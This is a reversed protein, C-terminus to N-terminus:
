KCKTNNSVTYRDGNLYVMEDKLMLTIDLNDAKKFELILRGQPGVGMLRYTGKQKGGYPGAQGKMEGRREAESRFTGDPCLWIHNAKLSTNTGEYLVLYKGRLETSWDYDANLDQLTPEVFSLNDAVGTLLDKYKEHLYTPVLVVMSACKGYPGCIALAHGMRSKDNSFSFSGMIREDTVEFEGVPKAFIGRALESGREWRAKINDLGDEYARVMIDLERASDLRMSLVDTGMPIYGTWGEPMKFKIGNVPAFFEDGPKYDRAAQVRDQSSVTLAFSLLLFCFIARRLSKAPHTIM